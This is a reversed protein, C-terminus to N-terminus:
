KTIFVIVAKITYRFYTGTGITKNKVWQAPFPFRTVVVEVNFTSVPDTTTRIFYVIFVYRDLSTFDKM